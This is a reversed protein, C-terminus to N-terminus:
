DLLFCIKGIMGFEVFVVMVEILKFVNFGIILGDIVSFLGVVWVVIIFCLWVYVLIVLDEGFGIDWCFDGIGFVFWFIGKVVVIENICELGWVMEVLVVILM